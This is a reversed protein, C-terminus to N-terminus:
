RRRRRRRHDRKSEFPGSACTGAQNEREQFRPLKKPTFCRPHYHTQAIQHQNISKPVLIGSIKPMM